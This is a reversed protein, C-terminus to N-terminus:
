SERAEKELWRAEEWAPLDAWCVETPYGPWVGKELCDRWKTLAYDVKANALEIVGPQPAVVALAYPPQKEQVVWRWEPREGTLKEIGRLYFAAQIDYGNDFLSGRTWKDPNANAATKYDDVASYDDHLWDILARCTVGDEEWIITQEPAGDTFPRPDATNADLQINAATVMAEVSVWHKRLLPTMGRSRADDRAEKAANTRWDGYEIIEVNDMGGEILLAHAATGIDFAESEDVLAQPNLRPHRAWAHLPSEKTLMRAISSSLSPVACPDAHYAAAEIKHFGPALGATAIDTM